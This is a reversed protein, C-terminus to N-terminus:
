GNVNWQWFLVCFRVYFQYVWCLTGANQYVEGTTM